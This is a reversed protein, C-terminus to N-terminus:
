VAWATDPAGTLVQRTHSFPQGYLSDAQAAEQAGKPVDIYKVELSM